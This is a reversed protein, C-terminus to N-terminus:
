DNIEQTTPPIKYKLIEPCLSPFLKESYHFARVELPTVILRSRSSGFRWVADILTCSCKFLYSMAVYSISTPHVRHPNPTPTPRSGVSLVVHFGLWFDMEALLIGM